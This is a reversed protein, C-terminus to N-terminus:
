ICLVLNNTLKQDILFLLAFAKWAHNNTISGIGTWIWDKDVFSITKTNTNLSGRDGTWLVIQGSGNDLSVIFGDCSITNIAEFKCSWVIGQPHVM